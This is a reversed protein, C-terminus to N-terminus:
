KRMCKLSPGIWITTNNKQQCTAETSGTIKYGNFCEYTLTTNLEFETETSESLSHKSHPITPAPGCLALPDSFHNFFANGM